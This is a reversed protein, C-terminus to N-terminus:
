PQRFHNLDDNLIILPFDRALLIAALSAVFVHCLARGPTETAPRWQSIRKLELNDTHGTKGRQRMHRERGQAQGKRGPPKPRSSPPPRCQPIRGNFRDASASNADEAIIAISSSCVTTSTAATPVKAGSMPAIWHHRVLQATHRSPRDRLESPGGWHAIPGIRHRAIPQRDQRRLPPARNTRAPLKRPMPVSRFSFRQICTESPRPRFMPPHHPKPPGINPQTKLPRDSPPWCGQQGPAVPNIRM